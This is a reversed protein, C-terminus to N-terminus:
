LSLNSSSTALFEGPLVGNSSPLLEPVMAGPLHGPLAFTSHSRRAQAPAALRQHQREPQLQSPSHLGGSLSRQWSPWGPLLPARRQSCTGQPAAPQSSPHLTTGAEQACTQPARSTMVAATVKRDQLYLWASARFYTPMSLSVSIM